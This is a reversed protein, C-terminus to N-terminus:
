RSNRLTPAAPTPLTADWEQWAKHLRAVVAPNAASVDTNEAADRALNYLRSEELSGTRGTLKWDGDRVAWRPSRPDAYRHEFFVPRERVFQRGRLAASADVGDSPHSESVAVDALSAFTPLFDCASLVSQRDVKGAPTVGPWRVILPVRIGGEHLTWKHGRWDGNSGGRGAAAGNDSSFVVLTNNALGLVDLRSLIRGIQRDMSYISTYHTQQPEPLNKFLARMEVGPKLPTHPEHFWAHLCFPTSRRSSAHDDLFALTEDTVLRAGEALWADDSYPYIDHRSSVLEGRRWTPGNGFMVRSVDFGYAWPLPADPHNIKSFQGSINASGGGLHWKGFLATRYGVQRLLSAQTPGGADLWDPMGRESNSALYALHEYIRYRSPHRGTLIGVRTPSCLCGAAYFQTFRTGDAALQDLHPTKAESSGYCALDGYGLDDALLFLINPSADAAEASAFGRLALGALLLLKLKMLDIDQRALQRRADGDDDPAFRPSVPAAHLDRTPPEKVLHKWTTKVAWENYGTASFANCKM